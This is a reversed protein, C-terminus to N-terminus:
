CRGLLFIRDTYVAYKRSNKKSPFLNGSGDQRSIGLIKAVETTSLQNKAVRDKDMFLPYNVVVLFDITTM